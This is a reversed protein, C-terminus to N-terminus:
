RDRSRQETHASRMIPKRIGVVSREAVVESVDGLRPGIVPEGAGGFDHLLIMRVYHIKVPPDPLRRDASGESAKSRKVVVRRERVSVSDADNVILVVGHLFMRSHEVDLAPLEGIDAGKIPLGIGGDAVFRPSVDLIVGVLGGIEDDM